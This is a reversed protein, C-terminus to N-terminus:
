SRFSEDTLPTRQFGVTALGGYRRAVVPLRSSSSSAELDKNRRRAQELPDAEFSQTGALRNADILAQRRWKYLTPSDVSLEAALAKVTEGALM